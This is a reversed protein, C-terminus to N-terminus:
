PKKRRAAAIAALSAGAVVGSILMGATDILRLGRSFTVIGAVAVILVLLQVTRTTVPLTSVRPLHVDGACTDHLLFRLIRFVQRASRPRRCGANWFAM